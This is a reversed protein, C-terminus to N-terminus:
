KAQRVMSELNAAFELCIKKSFIGTRHAVICKFTCFYVSAISKQVGVEAVSDIV